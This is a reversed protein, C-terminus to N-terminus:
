TVFVPNAALVTETIRVVSSMTTFVTVNAGVGSCDGERGVAARGVHRVKVDVEV